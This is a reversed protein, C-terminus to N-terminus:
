SNCLLAPMHSHKMNCKFVPAIEFPSAKTQPTTVVEINHNTRFDSWCIVQARMLDSISVQINEQTGHNVLSPTEFIQKGKLM